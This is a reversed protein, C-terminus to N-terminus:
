RARRRILYGIFLGLGSVLAAGALFRVPSVPTAGPPAPVPESNLGSAAQRRRLLELKLSVEGQQMAWHHNASFVPKAIFSLAKLLPKEATINWDYVIHVLDDKQQLKWVGKGVFDGEAAISFGHPYHSEIVRLRWRLTYPLWGKTYLEVLKGIGDKDGPEIEIVDLYVSPWWRVLEDANFLVDAVEQISGPVHWHSVFHYRNSLM